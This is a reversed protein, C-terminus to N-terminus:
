QQIRLEQTLRTEVITGRPINISAGATLISAGAGIKAGTRAGSSGGALGGIAAARATRGVTRAGEGGTQATVGSTSIEFLQDDIMIDTFEITM